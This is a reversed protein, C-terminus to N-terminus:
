KQQIENSGYESLFPLGPSSKPPPMGMPMGMPPGRGGGGGGGPTSGKEVTLNPGSRDNTMAHKLKAGKHISNLLAARDKTKPPPAFNGPPPAPPAAPPPPPPPPPM